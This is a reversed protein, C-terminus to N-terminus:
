DFQRKRPARRKVLFSSEVGTKSAIEKAIIVGSAFGENRYTGFYNRMGEIQTLASEISM